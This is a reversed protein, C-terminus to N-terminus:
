PQEAALLVACGGPLRWGKEGCPNIIGPGDYRPDDSSWVLKWGARSHSALLPEPTSMDALDNGLNVVLLRDDSSDGFFRLVLAERGVVAGDILDWDQRAILPEERRLRLLDEHFRYLSAHEHRECFKLKSREFTNRDSPDPVAKQAEESAYSLFQSLFEKRGKRVAEALSEERHDAFFLFPTTAGFEQGMFFMPTGPALLMLATLARYRAPSSVRSIREGHLTNAVQDHNQTFLVFAEAPQDTVLTGRPQDQWRYFQGQYLFGRKVASVFEQPTGCYDTYYAERRGTLAVRATHHFDDNWMADLGYGGQEPPKILVVDQSENEAVLIIPRSGAAARAREAMEALIHKPGSDYINQTADLRLGDLRFEEIWYCANQLFFERVERSGEGDFNIPDGWDTVHRDTFYHDSFASFYNGDPGIHNYVVDLIVAIDAQHAADVFRKFADADGYNHSPAFLGVGDYGWNWLGPCEAVPMIEILTVGFRRLEALERAAADFTGEPTFTGVHLEYIVQGRLRAGAWSKARWDFGAPDVILSAGHPGDPQFRSAPDPYDKKGELRYRYLDGARARLSVGSFYGNAEAALPEPAGEILVDVSRCKPAWLRFRVGEGLVTAGIDVRKRLGAPGAPNPV